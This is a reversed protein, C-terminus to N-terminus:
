FGKLRRTAPALLPRRLWLIGPSVDGTDARKEITHCDRDDVAVASGALM